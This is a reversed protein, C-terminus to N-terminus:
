DEVILYNVGAQEFMDKALDFGFNPDDMRSRNEPTVHCIVQTIGSQIIDGACSACCPLPYVCISYGSLNEKAFLIANEEAHKIVKYKIDKNNLWAKADHIKKPLGNFGVSAVTKDPRVIVAGVQTSPDKSWTSVLKAMELFRTYWKHNLM